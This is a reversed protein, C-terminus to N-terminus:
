DFSRDSGCPDANLSEQFAFWCDTIWQTETCDAPKRYDDADVTKAWLLDEPPMIIRIKILPGSYTLREFRYEVGRVVRIQPDRLRVPSETRAATRWQAPVM